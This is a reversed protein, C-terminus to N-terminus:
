KRTENVQVDLMALTETDLVGTVDLDNDEQFQRIASATKAGAVGDVNLSYGKDKLAQQAEEVDTATIDPNAITQSASNTQSDQNTQADQQSNYSSSSSSSGSGMNGDYNEAWAATGSTIIALAALLAQNSIKM